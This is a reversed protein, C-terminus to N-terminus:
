EGAQQKAFDIVFSDGDFSVVQGVFDESIHFTKSAGSVDEGADVAATEQTSAIILRVRLKEKYAQELHNILLNRGPPAENGARFVIRIACFGKPLCRSSISGAVSLWPEMKQSQRFRGNRMQLSRAM